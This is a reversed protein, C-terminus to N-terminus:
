SQRIRNYYLTQRKQVNSIQIQAERVLKDIDQCVNKESDLVMVLM